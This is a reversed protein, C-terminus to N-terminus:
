CLYPSNCFNFKSNHFNVPSHKQNVLDYIVELLYLNPWFTMSGIAEFFMKKDEFNIKLAEFYDSITEFYDWTNIFSISNGEINQPIM